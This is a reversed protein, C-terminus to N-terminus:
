IQQYVNLVLIIKLKKHLIKVDQGPLNRTQLENLSINPLNLQQQLKQLDTVICFQESSNGTQALPNM